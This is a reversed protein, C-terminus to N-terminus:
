FESELFLKGVEGSKEPHFQVGLVNDRKVACCFRVSTEGVHESIGFEHDEGTLPIYYSHVFYFYPKKGISKMTSDSKFEASNWGMHPTQVGKFKIAKGPFISLGRNKGEESSEFLLQMGLCIGLFPRGSKIFQHIPERYTELADGIADFSGVGPLVIRDYDNIEYPSYIMKADLSRCVNAFNGVGLDIVGTRKM